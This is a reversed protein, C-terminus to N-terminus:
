KGQMWWNAIRYIHGYKSMTRVGNMKPTKPKSREFCVNISIPTNAYYYIMWTKSFITWWDLINFKWGNRKKNNPPNSTSAFIHEIFTDNFSASCNRVNKFRFRSIIFLKNLANKTKQIANNNKQERKILNVM